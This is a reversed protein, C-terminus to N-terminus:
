PIGNIHHYRVLLALLTVIVSFGLGVFFLMGGWSVRRGRLWTVYSELLPGAFFCCNAAVGAVVCEIATVILSQGIGQTAIGLVVLAILYLNYIIRRQEWERFITQWVPWPSGTILEPGPDTQLDSIQSPEYPNM